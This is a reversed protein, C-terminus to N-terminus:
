RIVVGLRSPNLENAKNYCAKAEEFRKLEFLCEGKIYWVNDNSPNTEIAKNCCEIAEEYNGNEKYEMIEKWQELFKEEKLKEELETGCEPCFSFEVNPELECNPCIKPKPKEEGCYPCFKFDDNYIEKCKMCKM